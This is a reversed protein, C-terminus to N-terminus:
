GRAEMAVAATEDDEPRLPDPLFSGDPAISFGSYNCQWRIFFLDHADLAFWEGNLRKEKFHRHLYSEDRARDETWFGYVISVRKPLKPTIQKVRLSWVKAKGIKYEALDGHQLVYM